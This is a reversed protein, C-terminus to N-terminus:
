DRTVLIYSISVTKLYIRSAYTFPLWQLELYVNTIKSLLSRGLSAEALMWASPPSSLVQFTLMLLSFSLNVTLPHLCIEKICGTDLKPKRTWVWPLVETWNHVCSLILFSHLRLLVYKTCSWTCAYRVSVTSVM